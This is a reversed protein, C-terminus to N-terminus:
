PVRPRIVPLVNCEDGTCRGLPPSVRSGVTVPRGTWPSGFRQLSCLTRRGREDAARGSPGQPLAAGTRYKCMGNPATLTVRPGLMNGPMPPMGPPPPGGGPPHLNAGVTPIMRGPMPQGPMMSGPGPMQGTAPSIFCLTLTGALFPDVCQGSPSFVPLCRVKQFLLLAIIQLM